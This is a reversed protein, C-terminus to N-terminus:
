IGHGCFKPNIGYSDLQAEVCARKSKGPAHAPEVHFCVHAAPENEVFAVLLNQRASLWGDGDVHLASRDSYSGVANLVKSWDKHWNDVLDVRAFGPATERTHPQSMTFQRGAPRSALKIMKSEGCRVPRRLVKRSREVM